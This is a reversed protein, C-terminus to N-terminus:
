SEPYNSLREEREFDTLTKEHGLGPWARMTLGRQSAEVITQMDTALMALEMAAQKDSTGAIIEVTIVLSSRM